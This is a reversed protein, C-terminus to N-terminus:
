EERRWIGKDVVEPYFVKNVYQDFVASSYLLWIMIILPLLVLCALSQILMQTAVGCLTLLMKYPLYIVCIIGYTRIMTKGCFAISNKAMICLKNDYFAIQSFVFAGIPLMILLKSATLVSCVATYAMNSLQSVDNLIYPAVDEAVTVAGIILFLALMRKGNERIGMTFDYKFDIGEAWILRKIIRVSGSISISFLSCTIIKVLGAISHTVKLYATVMEKSIINTQYEGLVQVSIINEVALIILLPLLFLFNLAGLGLLTKWRNRIVDFFVEIRNSPLENITLDKSATKNEKM